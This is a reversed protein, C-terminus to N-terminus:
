GCKGGPLRVASDPLPICSRRVSVYSNTYCRRTSPPRIEKLAPLYACYNEGDDDDLDMTTGSGDM